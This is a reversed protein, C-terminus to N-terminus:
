IKEKRDPCPKPDLKLVQRSVQLLMLKQAVKLYSSVPFISLKHVPRLLVKKSIITRKIVGSSAWNPAMM